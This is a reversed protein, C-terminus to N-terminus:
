IFKMTVLLVYIVFSVREKGNPSGCCLAFYETCQAFVEDLAIEHLMQGSLAKEQKQPLIDVCIAGMDDAISDTIVISIVITRHMSYKVFHSIHAILCM